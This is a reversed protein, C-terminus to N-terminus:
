EQLARLAVGLAVAFEPGVKELVDNLFEPARVKEFPNALEVKVPLREEVYEKLGPMTAGGGSLVARTVDKGYKKEFSILIKNVESFIRGLTMDISTRIKQIDENDMPLDITVAVGVERKRREAQQFNFGLSRMIGMTIEQSGVNILHSLRVIGREVIYVKTGSAGIDVVLIPAIGRGLSSRMTSFIELEYFKVALGAQKYLTQYQSLINNHIAVLLVETKDNAQRNGNEDRRWEAEQPDEPIILWDLTVENISVPIYKRAELPIMNQLQEPPLKPFEVVSTLSSAFPISVGATKATVNSERIVDQLAQALDHTQLKVVKGLEDGVYPGLAIEGYTELVAKGRHQRLQVVKISSTGVDVGM